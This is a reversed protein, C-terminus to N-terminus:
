QGLPCRSDRLLVPGQLATQGSTVASGITVFDEGSSVKGAGLGAM